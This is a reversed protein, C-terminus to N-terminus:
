LVFFVVPFVQSCCSCTPFKIIIASCVLESFRAILQQYCSLLKLVVCVFRPFIEYIKM